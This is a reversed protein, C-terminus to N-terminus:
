YLNLISIYMIVWKITLFLKITIYHEENTVKSLKDNACKLVITINCKIFYLFLKYYLNYTM